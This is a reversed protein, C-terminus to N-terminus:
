LGDYSNINLEMPSHHGQADKIGFQGMPTLAYKKQLLHLVGRDLIRAIDMGLIREFEVLHKMELRKGLMEKTEDSMM